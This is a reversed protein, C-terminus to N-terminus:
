IFGVERDDETESMPEASASSAAAGGAQAGGAPSTSASGKESTSSGGTSASGYVGSEERQAQLKRAQRDMLSTRTRTKKWSYYYKVLQAITKDPLM